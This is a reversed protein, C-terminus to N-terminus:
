LATVAQTRTSVYQQLFTSECFTEILDLLIIHLSCTVRMLSSFQTSLGSLLDLCLHSFLIFHIIFFYPKKTHVQSVHSLNPDLSPNEHIHYHVKMNPLIKVLLTVILKEHHVRGCQTLINRQGRSVNTCTTVKNIRQIMYMLISTM